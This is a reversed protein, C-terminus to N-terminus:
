NGPQTAPTLLGLRWPIEGYKKGAKHKETVGQILFQLNAPDVTMTQDYGTRILEGHSINDTWPPDGQRVNAAGAFPKSESDALPTWKGDLSDALYAKYYRRGSQGAEVVTLYKELGKLRYTHSAEFIDAKLAVECHDFGEPFKELPTWMRWLRGDLSTFFLYAKASDAIVWFDIWKEVGKPDEQPFLLKAQSWSNPDAINESTSYAPQLQHKRTPEGVQYLLYWKRHPTFYFVQPACFYKDRCTLIHRDAKDAGDWKDFSLYEIQHTRVQSRITCFVHWRDKFFVATPDKVSCCPDSPRSAPSILPPSLKWAFPAKPEAAPGEARSVMLGVLGIMAFVSAIGITSHM